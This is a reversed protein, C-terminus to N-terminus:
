KIKKRQKDWYPGRRCLRSLDAPNRLLQEVAIEMLITNQSGKVLLVDDPMLLSALATGASRSSAYWTLTKNLTQAYPLGYERMLPGTAFVFDTVSFAAALVQEHEEKAEKGLERMDGLLILKRKAPYSQLLHIM